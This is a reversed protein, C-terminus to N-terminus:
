LSAQRHSAPQILFLERQPPLMWRPGDQMIQATEEFRTYWTKGGWMPIPTSVHFEISVWENVALPYRVRDGYAFPIDAAVRAGIDHAGNGVSHGYFGAEPRMNSSADGGADPGVTAYGLEAAKKNISAWIEHGIAGPQMRDTYVEAMAHVVDWAAKLEDPLENEGPRLIYATRKIDVSYGLYGLGGDIGVIDGPLLPLDPDHIPLLDGERVVRVTGYGSVGLERARDKLWWAVDEATTVGSRINETSLAEEMWQDTWVLLEEYLVSEKARRNLRFDRTLLEASVLRESYTPGLAEELYDFLGVTLGDAMPITPSRNIGIKEPNRAEVARRLHPTLGERSYGYYITEDYVSAIVSNRPQEHSGYYIKEPKDSGDDFFIYAARVGTGRGGLEVHLPDPNYERDLVIWMDIGHKRMAPLLSADLKEEILAKQIAFREKSGPVNYGPAAALPVAALASDPVVNVDATNEGSDACAALGVGLLGALTLSVTCRLIPM